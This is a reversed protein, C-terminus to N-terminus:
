CCFNFVIIIQASRHHVANFFPVSMFSLLLTELDHLPDEFVQIGPSSLFTGVKAVFDACTNNDPHILNLKTDWNRGLMDKIEALM